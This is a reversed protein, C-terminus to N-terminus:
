DISSFTGIRTHVRRRKLYMMKSVDGENKREQM